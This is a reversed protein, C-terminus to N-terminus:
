YSDVTLLSVSNWAELGLGDYGQSMIMTTTTTNTTTAILSSPSAVQTRQRRTFAPDALSLYSGASGANVAIAAFASLARQDHHHHHQHHHYTTLCSFSGANGAKARFSSRRPLFLEGRIGCEGRRCRVRFAGVSRPPPSPPPPPPPLHHPLLLKGRESGERSLQIRSPCIIRRSDRM